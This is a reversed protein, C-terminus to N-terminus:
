SVPLRHVLQKQYLRRPREPELYELVTDLGSDLDSIDQIDLPEARASNGTYFIVAARNIFAAMYIILQEIEIAFAAPFKFHVSTLSTTILAEDSILIIIRAGYQM